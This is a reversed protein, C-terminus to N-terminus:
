EVHAKSGRNQGSGRAIGMSMVGCLTRVTYLCGLAAAGVTGWAVFNRHWAMGRPVSLAVGVPPALPLVPYFKGAEGASGCRVSALPPPVQLIYLIVHGCCPYSQQLSGCM